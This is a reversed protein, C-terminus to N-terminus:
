PLQEENVETTSTAGKRTFLTIAESNHHHRSSARRGRQASRPQDSAFGRRRGEPDLSLSFNVEVEVVILSSLRSMSVEIISFNAIYVSILYDTVTMAMCVGVCLGCDRIM